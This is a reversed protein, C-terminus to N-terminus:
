RSARPSASRSRRPRRRRGRPDRRGRGAAARLDGVREAGTEAVAERVTDFVPIGDITPAARARRARRRRGPHRVRHSLSRTSSAWAHRHGPRPAEHQKDCLIAMASAERARRPSSASAPRACTEAPTIDLGSSALIERGERRTRARSGCWWRCRRRRSGAGGRRRGRRDSRLARHRRLHQRPDGEGERRAPDAQLGGQGEGQGRRRRRRPLERAQRRLGPDHRDDGDRPGAGNVMCGIDGDLGVYALDIEKAERERPDEEDPDRLERSTRTATSRTTTSTSSARRARAARRGEHRRAPQDRRALRGERRYLRTSGASSPRSSRRAAGDLGLASASAAAGPVAPARREPRRARDPDEGAHQAAVEEIDM